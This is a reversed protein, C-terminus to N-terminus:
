HWFPPLRIGLLLYQPWRQEPPGFHLSQQFCGFYKVGLGALPYLPRKAKGSPQAVISQIAPELQYAGALREHFNM